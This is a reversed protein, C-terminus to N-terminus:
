DFIIGAVFYDIVFGEIDEVAFAVCMGTHHGDNEEDEEREARDGDMKGQGGEQLFDSDNWGDM